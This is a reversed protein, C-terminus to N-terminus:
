EEKINFREKLSQIKSNVAEEIDISYLHALYNILITIDALEEKLNEKKFEFRGTEENFIERAIEGLEEYIHHLTINKNHTINRVKDLAETINVSKKQLESVEM